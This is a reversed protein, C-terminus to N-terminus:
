ITLRITPRIRITDGHNTMSYPGADFRQAMILRNNQDTVYFGYVTPNTMVPNQSVTFSLDM